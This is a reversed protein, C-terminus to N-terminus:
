EPHCRMWTVSQTDSQTMLTEGSLRLYVEREDRTATPACVLLAEDLTAADATAILDIACDDDFGIMETASITMSPADCDQADMAWSGFFPYDPVVVDEEGGGCGIATLLILPLLRRWM